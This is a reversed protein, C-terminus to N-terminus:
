HFRVKKLPSGKEALEAPIQKSLQIFSEVEKVQVLLSTSQAFAYSIAVKELINNSSIQIINNAVSFNDDVNVRFDMSDYEFDKMTKFIFFSQFMSIFTKEEQTEFNWFVISGFPFV